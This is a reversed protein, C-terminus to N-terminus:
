TRVQSSGSHWACASRIQRPQPARTSTTCRTSSMLTSPGGPARDADPRNVSALQGMRSASALVSSISISPRTTRPPGCCAISPRSSPGVSTMACAEPSSSAAPRRGRGFEAAYGGFLQGHLAGLLRFTVGGRLGARVFSARDDMPVPADLHLGAALSGGAWALVADYGASALPRGVGQGFEAGLRLSPGHQFAVAYRRYALAGSLGTFFGVRPPPHEYAVTLQIPTRYGELFDALQDFDGGIDICGSSGALVGGHLFFGTRANADGCPGERRRGKPDLRVRGSGWDGAHESRGGITVHEELSTTLKWQEGSTFRRIQPPQFSFTGEPIPGFDEFGVFRKDNMPTDTRPDAGCAAADEPTLRVPRGSQAGFRFIVKGDGSVILDRGDFHMTIQRYDAAPGGGRKAKEEKPKRRLVASSAAGPAEGQQVVHALEHALLRDRAPAAPNGEGAGLVIHNGLTFARAEAMEAAEAAHIDRHLRVQGFGRGFRPEFFARASESLPRGSGLSRLRAELGPTVAPPAGSRADGAARDAPPIRMVEDAVRDAEREFRDGPRGVKLKAQVLRGVARNGISQQLPVLPSPAATAAPRPNTTEVARAQAAREPRAAEHLRTARGM